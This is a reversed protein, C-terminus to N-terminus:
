LTRRLRKPMRSKLLTEPRKIYGEAFLANGLEELRDWQAPTKPDMGMLADYEATSRRFLHRDHRCDQCHRCDADVFFRLVEFWFQQELAFFLFPRHCVRCVRACDVYVRRPSYGYRQRSINATIASEPFIMRESGYRWYAQRIGANTWREGSRIPQCGYRPHEVFRQFSPSRKFRSLSRKHRRAARAIAKKAAM